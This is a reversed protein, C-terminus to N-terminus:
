PALLVRKRLLDFNARGYMQRKLIIRNVNGEVPGSSFPLTLGATM